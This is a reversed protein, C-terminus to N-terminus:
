QQCYEYEKFIAKIFEYAANKGRFVAIVKSFSDDICVVKYAFSCPIHKQYNKSYSGEYIEVGKLNCEFDAYIKIPVPIQKFYIKFEITGKEVKISQAGKNSLCDEKHKTM